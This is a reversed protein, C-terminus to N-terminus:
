SSRIMLEDRSAPGSSRRSRDVGRKANVSGWPMNETAIAVTSNGASLRAGRAAADIPHACRLGVAHALDEQQQDRRGCEHHDQRRRDHPQYLV